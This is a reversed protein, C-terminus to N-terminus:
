SVRSGKRALAYGLVVAEVLMAIQMDRQNSLVPASISTRHSLVAWWVACGVALVAYIAGVILHADLKGYQTELALSGAVTFYYIAVLGFAAILLGLVARRLFRGLLLDFAVRM